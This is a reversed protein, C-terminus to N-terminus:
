NAVPYLFAKAVPAWDSGPVKWELAPAEGAGEVVIYYPRGADFDLISKRAVTVFVHGRNGRVRFEHKGPIMSVIWGKNGSLGTGPRMTGCSGQSHIKQLDSDIAVSGSAAHVSSNLTLVLVAALNQYRM